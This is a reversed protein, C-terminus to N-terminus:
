SKSLDAQPAVNRLFSAMEDNGLKDSINEPTIFAAAGMDVWTDIARDGMAWLNSVASEDNMAEGTDNFGWKKGANEDEEEDKLVPLPDLNRWAPMSALLTTLLGAGRMAWTVLGVSMAVGALQIGTEISIFQNEHPEGFGGNGLDATIERSSQQTTNFSANLFNLLIQNIKIRAPSIHFESVRHSTSRWEPLSTQPTALSSKFERLDKAAEPAPEHATQTGSGGTITTQGSQDDAGANSSPVTDISYIPTPETGTGGPPQSPDVIPLIVIVPGLGGDAVSGPASVNVRVTRAITDIDSGGGNDQVQFTFADYNAGSTGSAPMFVFWGADIDAVSVFQGAVVAAGNDTLSGVMPLAAIRVALLSNAPNDNPDSFGFDGATFVYTVDQLITVTNNSGIPADNVNAVAATQASTLPGEASGQADTYAVQVSIQTGVDADGLLYSSATAGSVAVANRLWQYSFAGLGDADSIGSTDATLIQDETVIGTITPVGIPADNVSTVNVSMTRATTDTDVGGNASGGDDQVQFTFAAYAAGNANAAPTFKLNGASINALSVFDGASVAVGSLKLSGAAPLTTIKVASLANAPADAPDTFGFDVAAFTYATDELTTVTNNTGIPADNV